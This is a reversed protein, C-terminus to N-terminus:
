IFLNYIRNLYLINNEIYGNNRIFGSIEAIMESKTSEIEAIENKIRTTYSM